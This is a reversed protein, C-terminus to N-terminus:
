ATKRIEPSDGPGAVGGPQGESIRDANPEGSVGATGPVHGDIDEAAATKEAETDFDFVPGETPPQERAPEPEPEEAGKFEEEAEAMIELIAGGLRQVREDNGQLEPIQNCLKAFEENGTEDTANIMGALLPHQTEGAFGRAYTVMSIVKEAVQKDPANAALDGRISDIMTDIAGIYASPAAPGAPRGAATQSPQASLPQEPVQSGPRPLVASGPAAPAASQQRLQMIAAQEDPPRSAIQEPPMSLVANKLAIIDLGGNGALAAPLASVAQPAMAAAPNGKMVGLLMPLAQIISSMDSDAAVKPQLMQAMEIITKADNIRNESNTVNNDFSNAVIKEAISELPSPGGSLTSMLTAIGTMMDMPNQTLQKEMVRAMMEENVSPRGRRRYQTEADPDEPDFKHGSKINFIAGGVSRRYTAKTRQNGDLILIDWHGGGWKSGIFAELKDAVELTDAMPITEVHIALDGASKKHKYMVTFDARDKWREIALFFNEPQGVTATMPKKPKRWSEPIIRM